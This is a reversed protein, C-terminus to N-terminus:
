KRESEELGRERWLLSINCRQNVTGSSFELVEGPLMAIKHDDDVILDISTNALAFGILFSQSVPSQGTDSSVILASSQVFSDGQRLDLSFGKRPATLDTTPLTGPNQRGFAWNDNNAFSILIKELVVLVNSNAPNRLRANDIQAAVPGMSFGLGYRTWSEMFRNEPGYFMTVNPTIEGAVQRVPPSGKIGFIKQLARNYRGVLIENYIAM